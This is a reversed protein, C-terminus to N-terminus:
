GAFGFGFVDKAGLFPLPRVIDRQTAATFKQLCNCNAVFYGTHASAFLAIMGIHIYVFGKFEFQHGAILLDAFHFPKATTRTKYKIPTQHVLKLLILM